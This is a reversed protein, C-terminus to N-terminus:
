WLDFHSLICVLRAHLSATNQNDLFFLRQCEDGDENSSLLVSVMVDYDINRDHTMIVTVTNRYM